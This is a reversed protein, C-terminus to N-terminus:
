WQAVPTLSGLRSDFGPGASEQSYSFVESRYITGGTPTSGVRGLASSGLDLADAPKALATYSSLDDACVEWEISGVREVIYSDRSPEGPCPCFVM